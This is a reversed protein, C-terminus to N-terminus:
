EFVCFWIKNGQSLMTDFYAATSYQMQMEVALIHDYDGIVIHSSLLLRDTLFYYLNPQQICFFFCHIIVEKHGEVLIVM